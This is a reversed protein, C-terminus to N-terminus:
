SQQLPLQTFNLFKLFGRWSNVRVSSKAVLPHPSVLGGGAPKASPRHLFRQFSKACSVFLCAEMKNNGAHLASICVKMCVLGSDM